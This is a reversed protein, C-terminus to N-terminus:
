SGGVVVVVKVRKQLVWSRWVCSGCRWIGVMARCLTQKWFGRQVVNRRNQSWMENLDKRPVYGEERFIQRRRRIGLLSADLKNEFDLCDKVALKWQPIDNSMEKTGAHIPKPRSLRVDINTEHSRPIVLFVANGVHMDESSHKFFTQAKEGKERERREQGRPRWGLRSAGAKNSLGRNSFRYIEYRKSWHVCM